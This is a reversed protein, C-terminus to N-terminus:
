SRTRCSRGQGASEYLATMVEQVRLGDHGTVEVPLDQKIANEFSDILAARTSVASTFVREGDETCFKLVGESQKAHVPGALLHGRTGYIEVSNMRDEDAKPTAFSVSLTGLAGTEFKLLATFTEDVKSRFTNSSSFATVEVIDGALFRLLDLCHCGIDALAGGGSIAQQYRWAQADPKYYTANNIRVYTVEGLEGSRVIERALRHRGNFRMYYCVMLKVQSAEAASIAQRCEEVTLAMPKEVLMPKRAEACALMAALHAVPPTAIYVVDVNPDGALEAANPYYRLQGLHKTRERARNVDRSAIAVLRGEKSARLGPMFAKECVAGFGVIGWNM